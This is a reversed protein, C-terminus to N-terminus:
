DCLQHFQHVTDLAASMLNPASGPFEELVHDLLRVDKSLTPRAQTNAVAALSPSGALMEVGYSRGSGNVLVEALAARDLGFREGVAFADAAVGIHATLMANNLLKARQGGGVPGLHIIRASFSAFVPRCTEVVDADGGVMTVMQGEIARFHGGSVPADLVRLGYTQAQAAIDIIEQPAVTSHVAIISGSPMSRAVGGEGFLIERTGEADFVCTELLDLGVGVESLSSAIQAPGNAFDALSEPRRAWVVTDFGAQVIRQAIPAGQNGLGIFGVRMVPM